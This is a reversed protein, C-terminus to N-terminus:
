NTATEKEKAEEERDETQEFGVLRRRRGVDHERLLGRSSEDEAEDDDTESEGRRRLHVGGRRRRPIEETARVEKATAVTEADDARSVAEVLGGRDPPHNEHREREGKIRFEDCTAM